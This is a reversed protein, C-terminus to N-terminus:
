FNGHITILLNKSMLLTTNRIILTQIRMLIMISCILIRVLTSKSSPYKISSPTPLLPMSMFEMQYLDGTKLTAILTAMVTEMIQAFGGEMANATLRVFNLTNLSM